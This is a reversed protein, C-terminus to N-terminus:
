ISKLTFFPIINGVLTTSSNCHLEAAIPGKPVWSYTSVLDYMDGIPAVAENDIYEQLTM